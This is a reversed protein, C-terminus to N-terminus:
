DNPGYDTIPLPSDDDCDEPPCAYDVGECRAECCDRCRLRCACPSNYGGVDDYNFDEWCAGCFESM